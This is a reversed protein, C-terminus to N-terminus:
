EAEEKNKKNTMAKSVKDTASKSLYFKLGFNIFFGKKTDEINFINSENNLKVSEYSYGGDLIISLNDSQPIIMKFTTSIPGASANQSYTTDELGIERDYSAFHKGINFQLSIREDPNGALAITPIVVILLIVRKM